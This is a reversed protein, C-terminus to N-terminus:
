RDILGNRKESGARKVSREASEVSRSKEENQGTKPVEVKM